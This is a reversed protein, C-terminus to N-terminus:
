GCNVTTPVITTAVSTSTAETYQVYCNEYGATPVGSSSALTAPYLKIVGSDPAAFTWDSSNLDAAMKLDAATAKPYGYATNVTGNNVTATASSSTEKGQIVAKSYVLSAGGSIAAKAGNLTSIRADGKLNLFKPAATVALIGLIVIVIVLEILTFGANRKM